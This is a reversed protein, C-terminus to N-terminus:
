CHRILHSSRPLAIPHCLFSWFSTEQCRICLLPFPRLSRRLSTPSSHPFPREESAPLTRDAAGCGCRGRCHGRCRGSKFSRNGLLRIMQFKRDSNPFNEWFEGSIWFNWYNEVDQPIRPLIWISNWWFLQLIRHFKYIMKWFNSGITLCVFFRM